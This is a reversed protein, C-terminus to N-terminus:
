EVKTKGPRGKSRQPAPATAQIEKATRVGSNGNVYMRESLMVARIRRLLKRAVRIIAEQGKMRKTLQQYYTLMATDRRILQWSAEILMSRLQNHRRGSLGKQRHTEGSSHADPCFGVFRNLANFSRFRRVDGVELLCLMSTLPGVGHISRLAKSKQLFESSRMLARLKSETRLLLGHLWKVQELMLLLTDKLDEDSNAQREIWEMFARSWSPNDYQKPILIGHFILEGKLRNKSRVLDSWLKKRLRILSRQKQLKESPVYISQLLGAGLQMALKRADVPDTKNRREKDTGPIDAPNVVICEMGEAWLSRCLAFGWACSEYVCHYSAEGYRKRLHAVLVSSNGEISSNSLILGEHYVAVQWRDKHVDIGIYLDRGLFDGDNQVKIGPNEKQASTQQKTKM